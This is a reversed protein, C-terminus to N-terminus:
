ARCARRLCLDPNSITADHHDHRHPRPFGSADLVGGQRPHGNPTSKGPSDHACGHCAPTRTDFDSTCTGSSGCTSTSSLRLHNTFFAAGTPSSRSAAGSLYSDDPGRLTHCSSGLGCTTRSSDDLGCSAPFRSAGSTHGLVTIHFGHGTPPPPLGALQARARAHGRTACNIM